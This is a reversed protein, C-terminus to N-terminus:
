PPAAPQAPTEVPAAPAKVVTAPPAPKPDPAAAVLAKPREPPPLINEVGPEPAGGGVREYVLKDQNEIKLGGPNEPRVKYPEPQAAILPTQGRSAEGGPGFVYWAAAGAIVAGVLVGMGLAITRARGGSRDRGYYEDDFVPDTFAGGEDQGERQRMPVRQFRVPDAM